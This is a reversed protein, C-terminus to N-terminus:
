LECLSVLILCYISGYERMDVTSAPPPLTITQVISKKEKRRKEKYWRLVTKIVCVVHTNNSFTDVDKHGSHAWKRIAAELLNICTSYGILTYQVNYQVATPECSLYTTDHILILNKTNPETFFFFISRLSLFLLIFIFPVLYHPSCKPAVRSFLLTCSTM